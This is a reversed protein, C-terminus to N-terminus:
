FPFPLLCFSVWLSSLVFESKSSLFLPSSFSIALSYHRLFLTVSKEQLLKVMHQFDSFEGSAGVITKENVAEIRRVNRFRAMSGYSASIAVDSSVSSIYLCFCVFWSYWCDVNSWRQIQSRNSFSWHGHARQSLLCDVCRAHVAVSFFCNLLFFLWFSVVDYLTNKLPSAQVSITEQMETTFLECYTPCPYICFPLAVPSNLLLLLEDHRM